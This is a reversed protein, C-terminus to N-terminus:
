AGWGQTSHRLVAPTQAGRGAMTGVQGLGGDGRVQILACGGVWRRAEVWRSVATALAVRHSTLGLRARAGAKGRAIDLDEDWPKSARPPRARVM